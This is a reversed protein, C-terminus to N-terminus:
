GGITDLGEARVVTFPAKEGCVSEVAVGDPLSRQLFEAAPLWTSDACSFGLTAPLRFCGSGPRLSSPRPILDPMAPASTDCCGALCCLAALLLLLRKM